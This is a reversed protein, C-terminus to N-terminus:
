TSASNSVDHYVERVDLATDDLGVGTVHTAREPVGRTAKATRGRVGDHPRHDDVAVIDHHADPVM